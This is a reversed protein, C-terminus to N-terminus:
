ISLVVDCTGSGNSTIWRCYSGYSISSFSLLPARVIPHESRSRAFVHCHQVARFAPSNEILCVQGNPCLALVRRKTGLSLGSEVLIRTSPTSDAQSMTNSLYDRQPCLGIVDILNNYPSLSLYAASPKNNYIIYGLRVSFM